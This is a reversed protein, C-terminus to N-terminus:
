GTCEGTVPHLRLQLLNSCVHARLSRPRGAPHRPASHCVAPLRRSTGPLGVWAAPLTGNLLNGAVSLNALSMYAWSTPLSGAPRAMGEAPGAPWRTCVALICCQGIRRGSPAARVPQPLIAPYSTLGAGAM